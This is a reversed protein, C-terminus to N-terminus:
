RDVCIEGPEEKEFLPVAIPSHPILVSSTLFEGKKLPPYLPNERVRIAPRKDFWRDRNRCLRELPFILIPTIDSHPFFNLRLGEVPSLAIPTCFVFILFESRLVRVDRLKPYSGKRFRRTM